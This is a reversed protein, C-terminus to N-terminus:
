DPSSDPPFAPGTPLVDGTRVRLRELLTPLLLAPVSLYAAGSASATATSGPVVPADPAAPTDGVPQDLPQDVPPDVATPTTGASTTRTSAVQHAPQDPARHEPVAQKHLPTPEPGLTVPAAEASPHPEPRDASTEPVTVAQVAAATHDVVETLQASTNHVTSDVFTATLEGVAPLPDPLSETAQRVGHEARAGTEDAGATVAHAARHLTADAAHDVATTVPSLDVELGAGGNDAHAAGGSFLLWWVAALGGLVLLRLAPRLLKATARYEM